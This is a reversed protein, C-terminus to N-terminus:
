LRGAVAKMTERLRCRLSDSPVPASARADKLRARRAADFQAAIERSDFASLDKNLRHM